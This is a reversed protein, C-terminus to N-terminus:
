QYFLFYLLVWAFCSRTRIIIRSFFTRTRRFSAQAVDGVNQLHSNGIYKRSFFFETTQYFFFIENCDTGTNLRSCSQMTESIPNAHEAFMHRFWHHDLMMACIHRKLVWLIHCRFGRIWVLGNDTYNSNLFVYQSINQPFERETSRPKEFVCM